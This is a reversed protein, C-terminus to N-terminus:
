GFGHMGSAESEDLRRNAPPVLRGVDTSRLNTKTREGLPRWLNSHVLSYNQLTAKTTAATGGTRPLKTSTSSCTGRMHVHAAVAM